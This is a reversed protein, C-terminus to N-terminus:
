PTMVHRLRALARSVSADILEDGLTIRVGAMLSSDVAFVTRVAGGVRKELRSVISSRTESDLDRASVVRAQIVGTLRDRVLGFVRYMAPALVLRGKRSLLKMFGLTLESLAPGFAAGLAIERDAPSIGPACLRVFLDREGMATECVLELDAEVRAVMDRELAARYLAEAYRETLLEGSM